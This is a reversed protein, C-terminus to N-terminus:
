HLTPYEKASFLFQLMMSQLQAQLPIGNEYVCRIFELIVSCVYRVSLKEESKLSGETPYPTM